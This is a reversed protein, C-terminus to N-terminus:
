FNNWFIIQTYTAKGNQSRFSHNALQTRVVLDTHLELVFLLPLFVPDFILAMNVTNNWNANWAVYQCHEQCLRLWIPFGKQHTKGSDLCVGGYNDVIRAFCFFHSCCHIRAVALKPSWCSYKPTVDRGCVSPLNVVAPWPVEFQHHQYQHKPHLLGDWLRFADLFWSSWTLQFLPKTKKLWAEAQKWPREFREVKTKVHYWKTESTNWFGQWRYNGEVDVDDLLM